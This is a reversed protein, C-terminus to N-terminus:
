NVRDSGLVAAALQLFRDALEQLHAAIEPIDRALEAPRQTRGGATCEADLM